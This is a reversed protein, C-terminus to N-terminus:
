IQMIIQFDSLKEHQNAAFVDCSDVYKFNEM